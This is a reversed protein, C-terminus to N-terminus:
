RGMERLRPNLADNLGDSILAIGRPGCLRALESYEGRKLYSGTPDFDLLPATLSGKKRGQM